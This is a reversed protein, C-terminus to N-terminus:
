RADRRHSARCERHHQEDAYAARPQGHLHLRGQGPRPGQAARRSRARAAAGQGPDGPQAPHRDRGPRRVPLRLAPRVHRDRSQDDDLGPPASSRAAPVDLRAHGVGDCPTRRGRCRRLAGGGAASRAGAARGSRPLEVLEQGTVDDAAVGLMQEAGTNFLTIRGALDTGIFAITRASRLLHSVMGANERADTVDTATLVYHFPAEPSARYVNNSFLVTRPGAGRRQILTEGSLPLREPDGFLRQAGPRQHDPVLLDWFRKGVLEDETFGTLETTAPNAAIVTGDVTTVVIMSNATDIVARTYDKEAQLREHLQQSETVDMLLLSFLWTGDVQEIPSLTADIRSGPPRGPRLLGSWGERRGQAIDQAARTLEPSDLLELVPIGAIEQTTRGLLAYTAQNSEVFLLEEGDWSVITVPVRSETFNRRFTRESAVVKTLADDRQQMAKVLPLGILVLCTLYLQAHQTSAGADSAILPSFPGVGVQTALTIVTAFVVQEIVVVREEFRIAAWVVIPLPAFGLTLPGAVLTAATALLLAAVQAFLEVNRRRNRRRSARSTMMALPAILTVSAAHSPLILEATSWFPAGLLGAYTLSIGLSAVVGGLTAIGLLRWVDQVDTIRRGVYRVLLSAVVVTEIVDVLGLLTSVLLSRGMTLNALAFAVGLAVFLGGWSRRPALLAAVVAVGAAPFWAATTGTAQAIALAGVGTLYVAAVLAGM